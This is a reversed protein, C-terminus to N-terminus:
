PAAGNAGQATANLALQNFRRGFLDVTEAKLDVGGISAPMPAAM